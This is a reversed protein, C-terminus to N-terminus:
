KGVKSDVIFGLLVLGAIAGAVGAAMFGSSIPKVPEKERIEFESQKSFATPATASSWVFSSVKAYINDNMGEDYQITETKETATFRLNNQKVTRLINAGNRDKFEIINTITKNYYFPNFNQTATFTIQGLARGNEITFYDIQQTVMNDTISEDVTPEAPYINGVDVQHNYATLFEQESIHGSIVWNINNNVFWAPAIIKHNSIDNIIQLVQPSLTPVTVPEPTPAPEIIGNMISPEEEAFVQPLIEFGGAPEQAKRVENQLKHIGSLTGQIDSVYSCYVGRQHESECQASRWALKLQFVKEAINLYELAENNSYPNGSHRHGATWGGGEWWSPVPTKAPHMGVKFVGVQNEYDLYNKHLREIETLVPTNYRPNPRVM